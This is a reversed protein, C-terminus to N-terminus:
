AASKYVVNTKVYKHKSLFAIFYIIKLAMYNADLNRQIVSMDQTIELM